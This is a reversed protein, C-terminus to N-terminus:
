PLPEFLTGVDYVQDPKLDLVLEVGTAPNRALFSNFPNWVVIAYRGPPVDKFVFRGRDDTMAYPASDPELAYMPTDPTAGIHQGLYLEVGIMPQDTHEINMVGTVVATGPAPKPVLPATTPTATPQVPSTLPSVGTQPNCATLLALMLIFLLLIKKALPTM